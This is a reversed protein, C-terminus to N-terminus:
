EAIIFRATRGGSRLVYYGTPLDTIDITRAHGNSRRVLKGTATFLEFGEMGEMSLTGNSPYAHVVVSGGGFSTEHLGLELSYQIKSIYSDVGGTSTIANLGDTFTDSFTGVTCVDENMVNVGIAYNVDDQSSGATKAWIFNGSGDLRAIFVDRVGISTFSAAGLTIAQSFGGSVVVDGDPDVEIECGEEAGADGIKKAWISNGLDDLKLLFIDSSGSATLTIGGLDVTNSFVGSVYCNGNADVDIGRAHDDGAGGFRRAWVLTGDPAFRAIFIDNGADTLPDYLVSDIQIGGEFSGAIYTNELDDSSVARGGSDGIGPLGKSWIRNGNVDYKVLFIDTNDAHPLTDSGFAMTGQTNGIVVSNGNSTVVIENGYESATGSATAAWLCNGDPDFQAAFHDLGGTSNLTIDPQITMTQRFGGTICFVGGPECDIDFALDLSISGFSMAWVLDGVSNLKAVFIDTAGNSTLTQGGIVTTGSFSGTIYCNSLSDLCVGRVVDDNAGSLSTLWEFSATQAQSFMSFVSLAITVFAKQVAKHM